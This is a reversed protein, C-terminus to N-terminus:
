IALEGERYNEHAWLPLYALIGSKMWAKVAAMARTTESSGSSMRMMAREKPTLRKAVNIARAM